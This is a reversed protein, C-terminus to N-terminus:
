TKKHEPALDSYIMTTELQTHGLLRQVTFIPVGAMVLHSAFTHGFTHCTAWPLGISTLEFLIDGAETKHEGADPIEVGNRIKRLAIGYEHSKEDQFAQLIAIVEILETLSQIITPMGLDDLVRQYDDNNKCCSLSELCRINKHYRSPSPVKINRKLFESKLYEIHEAIRKFKIESFQAM